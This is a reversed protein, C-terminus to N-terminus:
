IVVGRKFKQQVLAHVADVTLAKKPSEVCDYDCNEAGDYYVGEYANHDYHLRIDGDFTYLMKKGITKDKGAQLYKDVLYCNDFEYCTWVSQVVRGIKDKVFKLGDCEIIKYAIGRVNLDMHKDRQGAIYVKYGGQRCFEFWGSVNQPIGGNRSDLTTHGEDYIITSGRPFRQPNPNDVCRLGFRSLDIDKSALGSYLPGEIRSTSYVLHDRQYTFKTFGGANLEDVKKNCEQLACCAYSPQMDNVGIHAMFSSKGSGLDGFVITLKPRLAEQLAARQRQIQRMYRLDEFM